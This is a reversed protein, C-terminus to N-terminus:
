YFSMELYDKSAYKDFDPKNNIKNQLWEPFVYINVKDSESYPTDEGYFVLYKEKKEIDYSIRGIGYYQRSEYLDEIYFWDGIKYYDNEIMLEKVTYLYVEYIEHFDNSSELQLLKNFKSETGNLKNLYNDLM